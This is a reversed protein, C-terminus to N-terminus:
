AVGILNMTEWLLHPNWAPPRSLENNMVNNMIIVIINM